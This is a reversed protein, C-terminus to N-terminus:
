IVCVHNAIIMNDFCSNVIGPKLTLYSLYTFQKLNMPMCAKLYIEQVTM